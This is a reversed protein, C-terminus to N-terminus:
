ASGRTVDSRSGSIYAAVQVRPRPIEIKRHRSLRAPELYTWGGVEPAGDVTACRNVPPGVALYRWHQQMPACRAHAGSACDQRGM